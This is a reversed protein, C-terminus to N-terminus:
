TKRPSPETGDTLMEIFGFIKTKNVITSSPAVILKGLQNNTLFVVFDSGSKTILNV